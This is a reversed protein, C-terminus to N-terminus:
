GSTNLFFREKAKGEAGIRKYFKIARVNFEPTQWQILDIGTKVGEERIREVLKQGIGMSRSEEMLYLCDMYFYYKADWTSFQKMYTAYGVIKNKWLAVLCYLSPNENFLFHRLKEEKGEKTYSSKEFLAHLECLQVMKDVEDERIFRIETDKM